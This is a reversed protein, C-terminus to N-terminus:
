DRKARVFVVTASLAMVAGFVFAAPANFWKWLLGFLVSAPLAGIGVALHFWGYARGREAEPVLDAVYAREAGEVLGYYLGYVVFLAWIHWTKTALAFGLYVLGYLGWGLLIVARRGIKDSLMGGPMNSLAKVLNLVMWIVPILALSVGADQARLVLFVDSSNGLTFLIAALLYTRFVGTPVGGALPSPKAPASPAAEGVEPMREERVKTVLIWIALLGPIISLLFITKLRAPEAVSALLWLLASAILPGIAAGLNDMMRQYGFARGRDAEPVTAALLADRPSTRVGKGVRDAFRLALVHWGATAVGILPRVLNSLGYGLVTLAKRKRIRDSYWGSVLKLLSATSEAVGELTGLFAPGLGLATTVFAPLLPVIMESAIDNALSVSGLAKVNDPMKKM